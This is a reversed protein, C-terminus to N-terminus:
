ALVDEHYRALTTLFLPDDGSGAYVVGGISGHNNYDDLATHLAAGSGQWAASNQKVAPGNFDAVGDHNADAYQQLWDIAQNMRAAPSKPDLPDGSGNGAEFNLWAAIVDRGLVYRADQSPKQSKSGTVNPCASTSSASTPGCGAPWSSPQPM